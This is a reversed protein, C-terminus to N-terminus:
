FVFLFFFFPYICLMFVAFLHAVCFLNMSILINESRDGSEYEKSLPYLNGYQTPVGNWDVLRMNNSSIHLAINELLEAAQKKMEADEVYLWILGLALVHGSYEDNSVNDKFCYGAYKIDTKYETAVWTSTENDFVTLTGDEGILVWNNATETKIYDSPDTPCAMGDVRGAPPSYSRCYLGPVGTVETGITLGEMLLDLLKKTNEDKTRAYKFVQSATVLATWLGDNDSLRYEEVAGNAYTANEETFGPKLTVFHCRGDGPPCHLDSLLQDYLAAKEQLNSSTGHEVGGCSDFIPSGYSWLPVCGPLGNEVDEECLEGGSTTCNTTPYWVGEFCWELPLVFPHM